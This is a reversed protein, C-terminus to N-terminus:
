TIILAGNQALQTYTMNLAALQTYTKNKEALESYNIANTAHLQALYDFM